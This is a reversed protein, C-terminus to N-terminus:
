LSKRKIDPSCLLWCHHITYKIDIYVNIYMEKHIEPPWSDWFEGFNMIKTALCKMTWRMEGIVMEKAGLLWPTWRIAGPADPWRPADLPTTRPASASATPSVLPRSPPRHIICTSTFTQYFSVQLAQIIILNHEDNPMINASKIFILGILHM